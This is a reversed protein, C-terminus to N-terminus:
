FYTGMFGCHLIDALARAATNDVTFFETCAGSAHIRQQMFFAHVRRELKFPRDTPVWAVLEFPIPVCRSLERLRAEPGPRRTAGIKLANIAPSRAFYVGGVPLPRRSFVDDEFEEMENARHAIDNAHVALLAPLTHEEFEHFQALANPCPEYTEESAEMRRRKKVVDFEALESTSTCERTPRRQEQIPGQGDNYRWEGLYVGSVTGNRINTIMESYIEFDGKTDKSNAYIAIGNAGQIKHGDSPVCRNYVLTPINMAAPQKMAKLAEEGILFKLIENVRHRSQTKLLVILWGRADVACQMSEIDLKLKDKLISGELKKNKDKLWMTLVFHQARSEQPLYSATLPVIPREHITLTMNVDGKPYRCAGESSGNEGHKAAVFSLSHTSEKIKVFHSHRGVGMKFFCLIGGNLFFM